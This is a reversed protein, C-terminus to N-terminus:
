RREESEARALEARLEEAERGEPVLPVLWAPPAGIQTAYGALSVPCPIDLVHVPPNGYECFCFGMMHGSVSHCPSPKLGSKVIALRGANQGKIVLVQQGIRFAM